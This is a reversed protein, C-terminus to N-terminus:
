EVTYGKDTITVEIKGEDAQVTSPMGINMGAVSVLGLALPVLLGRLTHESRTM